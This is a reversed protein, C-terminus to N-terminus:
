AFSGMDEQWFTQLAASQPSRALNYGLSASMCFLLLLAVHTVNRRKWQVSPEQDVMVVVMESDDATEIGCPRNAGFLRSGAM